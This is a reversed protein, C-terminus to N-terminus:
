FIPLAQDAPLEVLIMFEEGGWRAVLDDPRVVETLVRAVHGLADDGCDHGYTDNLTKFYDVDALGVTVVRGEREATELRDWVPRRNPIGTLPDTTAVLDAIRLSQDVLRHSARTARTLELALAFLAVTMVSQNFTALQATQEYNLPHSANARSFFVQIIVVSALLLGVCVYRATNHGEPITVMVGLAGIFLYAGFGAEVSFASAVYLVPLIPLVQALVGAALMRGNAALVLAFLDAVVLAFTVLALSKPLLPHSLYFFGLGAALAASIGLYAVLNLRQRRTEAARDEWLQLRAADLEGGVGM